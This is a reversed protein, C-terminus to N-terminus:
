RRNDAPSFRRGRPIRVDGNGRGWTPEVEIEASFKLMLILAATGIAAATAAAGILTPVISPIACGGAPISPRASMM